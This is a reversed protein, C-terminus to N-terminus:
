IVEPMAGHKESALIFDWATGRITAEVLRKGWELADDKTEVWHCGISSRSNDPKGVIVWWSWQDNAVEPLNLLRIPHNKYDIITIKTMKM